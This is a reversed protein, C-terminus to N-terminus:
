QAFRKLIGTVNFNKKVAIQQGSQWRIGNNIPNILPIYASHVNM